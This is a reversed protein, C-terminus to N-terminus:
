SDHTIHSSFNPLSPSNELEREKIGNKELGSKALTM